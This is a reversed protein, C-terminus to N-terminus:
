SSHTSIFCKSLPITQYVMDFGKSQELLMHNSAPIESVYHHSPDPHEPNYSSTLYTNLPYVYGWKQAWQPGTLCRPPQLIRTHMHVQSKHSHEEAM